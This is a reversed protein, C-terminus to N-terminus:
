APWSVKRSSRTENGFQAKREGQGVVWVEAGLGHDSKEKGTMKWNAITSRALQVMGGLVPLHFVLAGTSPGGRSGGPSRAWFTPRMWGPHRDQGSHTQTRETGSNVRRRCGILIHAKQMGCSKAPCARQAGIERDPSIRGAKYRRDKSRCRM